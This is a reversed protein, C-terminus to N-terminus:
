IRNRLYAWLLRVQFEFQTNKQLGEDFLNFHAQQLKNLFMSARVAPLFALNSKKPITNQFNRAHELHVYAHSAVEYVVDALRQSQEPSATGKM